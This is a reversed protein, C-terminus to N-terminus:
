RSASAESRNPRGRFPVVAGAPQVTGCFKAWDEMMRRRKEFLDGRRYAAEVKDGVAHALAMEAMENPYNTNESCWDRFTSRFGHPVAPRGDTPDIWRQGNAENLRVIAAKMTADSLQVGRPSPFVLKADAIKPLAKLHRIAAKSLPVRHPKKGKMREAPVNWVAAELDIESWPLGRVEGSRAATLIAFELAAAGMGDLTRLESMFEGMDAVPLAPHHGGRAVKSAAPLLKDLHGKWRAPNLGHRYGRVTAWDLVAEIRGRLRSATETKVRWIPELVELVHPLEVDRVLMSGFVPYAYTKLTNAWQQASKDNTWKAEHAELYREACQEFTVSAAQAAKLASRDKKAQEIPDIGKKILARADRAMDRAQTLPVDPYGGLGMHRRKGAINVRLLWSRGGTPLVQLALGDVGGVFYLGPERMRSVAVASREPAKRGM